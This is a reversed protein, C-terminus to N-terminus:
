FKMFVNKQRVSLCVNPSMSTGLRFKFILLKYSRVSNLTYSHHTISNLFTEDIIFLLLTKNFTFLLLYNRIEKLFYLNCFQLKLRNTVCQRPLSRTVFWLSRSLTVLCSIKVSSFPASADNTWSELVDWIKDVCIM